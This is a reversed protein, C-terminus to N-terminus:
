ASRRSLSALSSFRSPWSIYSKLAGMYDMTMVPYTGGGVTKSWAWNYRAEIRGKMLHVAAPAQITEDYDLGPLTIHPVALLLYSV